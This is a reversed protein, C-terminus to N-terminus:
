LIIQSQMEPQAAFSFILFDLNAPGVAFGFGQAVNRLIENIRDDLACSNLLLHRQRRQRLASAAEIELPDILAIPINRWSRANQM